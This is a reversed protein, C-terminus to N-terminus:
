GAAAVESVRWLHGDRTVRRPLPVGGACAPVTEPAFDITVRATGGSGAVAVAGDGLGDIAARADACLKRLVAGDGLTCRSGDLRGTTVACQRRLDGDAVAGLYADVADRASWHPGDRFAVLVVPVVLSAATVAALAAAWRWWPWGGPDSGPSTGRTTRLWRQTERDQFFAMARRALVSGCLGLLGLAVVALVTEAPPWSAWIPAAADAATTLPGLVADLPGSLVAPTASRLWIGVSYLRQDWAYVGVAVLPVLRLVLTAVDRRALPHRDAPRVGVYGPVGDAEPALLRRVVLPMTQGWDRDYHVHDRVVSLEGAVAVHQYAGTDDAAVRRGNPVLDFPAWVDLWRVGALLPVSGDGTGTLRRVIRFAVLLLALAVVALVLAPLPQNRGLLVVVAVAAAVIGLYVPTLLWNQFLRRLRLQELRGLGSGLTILAQPKPGDGKMAHYAVAAGQSHALVVTPVGTGSTAGGPTEGGPTGSGAMGDRLRAQLTNVMAARSVPDAVFVYADGISASVWGLLNGVAKKVGSIPLSVAILLILFLLALLPAALALGVVGLAFPLATVLVRWPGGRPDERLMLGAQAIAVTPAVVLLFRLVRGLTPVPFADAWHAEVVSIRDTPPADGWGADLPPEFVLDVGAPDGTLEARTVRVNEDCAEVYRIIAEAWRQATQGVTQSGIGHVVILRVPRADM